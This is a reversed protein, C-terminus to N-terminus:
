IIEGQSTKRADESPVDDWDANVHRDCFGTTNQDSEQLMKLLSLKAVTQGLQFLVSFRRTCGPLLKEATLLSSVSMKCASASIDLRKVPNQYRQKSM